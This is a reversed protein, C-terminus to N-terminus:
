VCNYWDSKRIYNRRYENCRFCNFSTSGIGPTSESLVSHKRFQFLWTHSRLHFKDIRTKEKKYLVLYCIIPYFGSFRHYFHHNFFKYLTNGPNTCNEQIFYRHSWFGSFCGYCVVLQNIRKHEKTKKCANVIYSVIGIFLGFLKFRSIEEHFLFYAAIIPIFLSLRQAIDSKVIGINKISAALFWFIVPLLIGLAIYIPSPIVVLDNVQPKFFFCGLIIAFLYNWTVTQIINIKYRRALKLLVAVTVSCCISILIYIM